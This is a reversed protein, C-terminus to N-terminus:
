DIKLRIFVTTGDPDGGYVTELADPVRNVSYAAGVGFRVNGALRWDRVAGVSAMSVTYLDGHGGGAAPTQAHHAHGAQPSVPPASQPHHSHDQAQAAAATLALLSAGAFRAAFTHAAM